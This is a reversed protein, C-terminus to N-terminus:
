AIKTCKAFRRRYPHGRRNAFFRELRGDESLVAARLQLITESGVVGDGVGPRDWYKDKGKVRSNFEGVLSEVLSSTVPLGERRYHPYDMREQNNKLYCIAEKLVHRQEAYADPPPRGLQPSEHELPLIESCEQTLVELKEQWLEMETLVESVRGQWCARMWVEFQQWKETEDEGLAYAATFLYCLVHLFDAIAVFHPFWTKHIRWNYHQGDGLFAQRPAQYFARSQAEAAVMAGFAKSDSMTAVCTRVLHEPGQPQGEEQKAVVEEAKDVEGEEPATGEESASVQTKLQRVLRTVRRCDRFAPPPEPQPDESHTESRMGLLCAIKDEKCQREHVGPGAGAERTNLRGGDIEVVAVSPSEQVRCPLQRRRYQVTQEDRQQALEEGVEHALRQVHRGSIKVDAAVELALAAQQFSHLSGALSVIRRLLDPSYSHTSLGLSYRLPFFIGAASRATAFRNPM